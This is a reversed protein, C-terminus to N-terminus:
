RDNHVLTIGLFRVSLRHSYQRREGCMLGVIRALDDAAQPSWRIQMEPAFCRKSARGQNEMPSFEGRDLQDLDKRVRERFWADHDSYHAVLQQVYEDANSSNAAAIRNVKAELEDAQIYIRRAFADRARWPVVRRAVRLGVRALTLVFVVLGVRVPWGIAVMLLIYPVPLLSSESIGANPAVMFIIFAM